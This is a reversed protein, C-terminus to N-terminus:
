AEVRPPNDVEGPLLQGPTDGPKAPKWEVAAGHPYAVARPVQATDPASPEVGQNTEVEVGCRPCCHLYTVSVIPLAMDPCSPCMVLEIHVPQTIEYSADDKPGDHGHHVGVRNTLVHMTTAVATTDDAM